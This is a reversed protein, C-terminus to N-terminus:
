PGCVCQCTQKVGYAAKVYSRFFWAGALVEVFALLACVYVFVTFRRGKTMWAALRDSAKM